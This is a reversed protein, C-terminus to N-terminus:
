KLSLSPPLSLFISLSAQMMVVHSAKWHSTKSKEGGAQKRLRNFRSRSWVFSRGPDDPSCKWALTHHTLTTKGQESALFLGGWPLYRWWGVNSTIFKFYFPRISGTKSPTKVKHSDSRQNGHGGHGDEESASRSIGKSTARFVIKLTHTANAPRGAACQQPVPDGLTAILKVKFESSQVTLFTFFRQAQMRHQKYTM